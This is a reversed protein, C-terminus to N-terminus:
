IRNKKEKTYSMRQYSFVLEGDCPYDDYRIKAERKRAEM